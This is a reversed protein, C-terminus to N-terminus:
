SLMGGGVDDPMNFDDEDNDLYVNHEYDEGTDEEKDLVNENDEDEDEDEDEKKEKDDDDQGDKSLIHDIDINLEPNVIALKMKVQQQLSQVYNIIEEVIVVNGTIREALNHSNTAQVRQARVHIYDEKGSDSTNDKTQKRIQKGRTNTKQKKEDQGNIINESSCTLPQNSEKDIEDETTFRGIGFRISTHAMDEDVGLARLLYSPELSASTCASGSSVVVETTMVCQQLQHKLGESYM